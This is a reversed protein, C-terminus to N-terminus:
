REAQALAQSIQKRYRRPDLELGYRAAGPYRWRTFRLENRIDAKMGASSPLDIKGDVVAALFASQVDMMAINAGGGVYSGAEFVTVRHGSELLHRAASLGGAGAGIVAAKRAPEPM